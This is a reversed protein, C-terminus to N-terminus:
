HPLAAEYGQVMGMYFCEECKPTLMEKGVLSMARNNGRKKDKEMNTKEVFKENRRRCQGVARTVRQFGRSWYFVGWGRIREKSEKKRKFLGM